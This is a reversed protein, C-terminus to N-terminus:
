CHIRTRPTSPVRIGEPFIGCFGQLREWSHALCGDPSTRVCEGKRCAAGVSGLLDRLFGCCLEQKMCWALPFLEEFFPRSSGVSNIFLSARFSSGRSWSLQQFHGQTSCLTCLAWDCRGPCGSGSGLLCSGEVYRSGAQFLSQVLAASCKQPSFTSSSAGFCLQVFFDQKEAEM